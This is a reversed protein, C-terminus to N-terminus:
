KVQSKYYISYIDKMDSICRKLVEIDGNISASIMRGDLENKKNSFNSQRNETRKLIFANRFLFTEWNKFKTQEEFSILDYGDSVSQLYPLHNYFALNSRTKIRRISFILCPLFVDIVSANNQASISLSKRVTPNFFDNPDKQLGLKRMRTM